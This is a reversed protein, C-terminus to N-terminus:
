LLTLIERSQRNVTAEDRSLRLFDTFNEYVAKYHRFKFIQLETIYYENQPKIKTAHKDPYLCVVVIVLGDLYYFVNPILALYMLLYQAM